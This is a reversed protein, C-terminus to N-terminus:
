RQRFGVLRVGPLLGSLVPGPIFRRVPIDATGVGMAPPPTAGDRASRGGSSQVEIELVNTGPRLADTIEWRYPRWAHDGLDVGNLRVKAYDRVNECELFVRGAAPPATFEKRYRAVGRFSPIGLDELSKLPTVLSKEGASLSWDGSLELIDQDAAMAQEPEAVEAPLPGLVILKAEYPEFSLPLAVTGDGAAAGTLAHIAGAGADWLQPEGRGALTVTRSQNDGSENFLFYVDADLLSRHNYSIPPCPRDLAVDPSPLAQLVRATIEASPELVAFSLDPAGDAADLFTRGVVMTPTRGVFVVKGGQGAFARLRDLAAQTIVSSPPIVIGRYVQGSLNRLGGGDLTGVTALVQEDIYDFDVQHELLQQALRETADVTDVDGM